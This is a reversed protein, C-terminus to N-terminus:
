LWGVTLWAAKYFYLESFQGYLLITWDKCKRVNNESKICIVLSHSHLLNDGSSYFLIMNCLKVPTM